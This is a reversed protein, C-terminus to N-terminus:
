AKAQCRDKMLDKEFGNRPSSWTKWGGNAGTANLKRASCNIAIYLAQGNANLTPVVYSGDMSHWNAWDVQLPGYTRWDAKKAIVTKPKAKPSQATTATSPKPNTAVTQTTSPKSVATTKPTKAAASIVTPSSASDQVTMTTTTMSTSEISASEPGSPATLYLRTGIKVKNPDELQNISILTTVPVKYAKAIQTLTQGKGVTHELAGPVVTIPAPKIRAPKLVANKPLKLTQGLEVHNADRLGNVAMLDKPSVQYRVAIAILTEGRNVRHRGPGAGVFGTRGRHDPIRLRGGAEVHNANSIGNLRMLENVTMRYRDAIDSLTEGPQVTITAATASLPLFATLVLVAFSPLRM